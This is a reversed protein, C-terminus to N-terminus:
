AVSRWAADIAAAHERLFISPAGRRQRRLSSRHRRHHDETAPLEPGHPHCWSSRRQAERSTSRAPIQAPSRTRSTPAPVPAIVASSTRAPADTTATSSCGRRAAISRSRKAPKGTVTTRTSAVSRRSGRRTNLTTAFGGNPTVVANSRRSVPEDLRSCRALKTSGSHADFRQATPRPTPETVDFRANVKASPGRTGSSANRGGGVTRGRIRSM